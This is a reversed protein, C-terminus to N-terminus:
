LLLLLYFKKHIPKIFGWPSYKQIHFLTLHFFLQLLAHLLFFVVTEIGWIYEGNRESGTFGVKIILEKGFERIWVTTLKIEGRLIKLSYLENYKFGLKCISTAFLEINRFPTEM